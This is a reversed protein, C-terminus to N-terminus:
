LNALPASPSPRGVGMKAGPRIQHGGQPVEPSFSTLSSPPFAPCGLCAVWAWCLEGSPGGTGYRSRPGLSGQGTGPPEFDEAGGHVSCARKHLLPSSRAELPVWRGVCRRGRAEGGM